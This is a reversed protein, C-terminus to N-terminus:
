AFVCVFWWMYVSLKTGSNNHQGKVQYLWSSLYVMYQWRIHEAM